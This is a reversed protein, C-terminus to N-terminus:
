HSKEKLEILADLLQHALSLKYTSRLNRVREGPGLLFGGNWDERFGQGARDVPNAML